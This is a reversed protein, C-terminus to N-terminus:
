TVGGSELEAETRLILDDYFVFAEEIYPLQENTLRGRYEDVRERAADLRGCDVLLQAGSLRISGAAPGPVREASRDIM